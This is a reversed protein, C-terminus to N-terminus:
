VGINLGTGQSMATAGPAIKLTGKTKDKPKTPETTLAGQPEATTTTVAYAAQQQAAMEASAQAREQELQLRQKEAMANADDIQKQLAASFQQQQATSQQRYTDLAANNADIDAQSPGQYVVQPASPSSFFCM